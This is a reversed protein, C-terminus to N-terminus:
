RLRRRVLIESGGGGRGLIEQHTRRRRWGRLNGRIKERERQHERQQLGATGTGEGRPAHAVLALMRAMGTCGLWAKFLDGDM